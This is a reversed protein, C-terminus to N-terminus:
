LQNVNTLMKEKKVKWFIYSPLFLFFALQPRATIGPNRQASIAAAIELIM